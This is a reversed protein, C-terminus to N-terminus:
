VSFNRWSGWFRNGSGLPTSRALGMTPVLSLAASRVAKMAADLTKITTVSQNKGMTSCLRQAGLTALGFFAQDPCGLEDDLDGQGIGAPFNYGLDIGRGILEWMLMDLRTLADDQEEPTIDLEWSNIQCETFMQGVLLRKTTTAPQFSNASATVTLSYERILVQGSGTTVTMQFLTTTGDTGDKVWLTILSASNEQKLIVADGSEITVVYSAIADEGLETTWDATYAVTEDPDKPNWVIAPM